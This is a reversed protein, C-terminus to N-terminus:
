CWTGAAKTRYVSSPLIGISLLTISRSRRGTAIPRLFKRNKPLSFPPFFFGAFGLGTTASFPSSAADGGGLSGHHSKAPQNGPARKEGQLIHPRPAFIGGAM